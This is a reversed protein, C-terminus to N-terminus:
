NFERICFANTQDDKLGQSFGMYPNEGNLTWHFVEKEISGGPNTVAVSSSSLYSNGGYAQIKFDDGGLSVSIAELNIIKEKNDAGGGNIYLQNVEAASPLYWGNEFETGAIINSGEVSAYNKAYYFSPYNAEVDTDDDDGLFRAIEELDDSGDLDGEFVFEGKPGNPAFETKISEIYVNYASATSLCWIADGNKHKLGVGLTRSRGNDSVETGKYFIIAIANAKKAEKQADSLANFATYPMASGDNFVIDGVDKARSPAKTGIYSPGAPASPDKCSIIGAILGAAILAILLKKTIKM